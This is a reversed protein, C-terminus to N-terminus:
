KKVKLNHSSASRKLLKSLHKELRGMGKKARPKLIKPKKSDKSIKLPQHDMLFGNLNAM